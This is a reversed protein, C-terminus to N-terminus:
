PKRLLLGDIGAGGAQWRNAETFGAESGLNAFEKFSRQEFQGNWLLMSLSGSMARITGTKDDNPMHEAILFAGGASTAAFVRHMLKLIESDSHHHLVRCAVFLDASVFEGKRYDGGIFQVNAKNVVASRELSQNAFDKVSEDELMRDLVAAEIHEYAECIAIAFAGTGGGLDIVKKVGSFDFNALLEPAVLQIYRDMRVQFQIKAESSAAETPLPPCYGSIAKELHSWAQYDIENYRQFTHNLSEDSSWCLHRAAVPSNLYRDGDKKLLGLSICADLLRSLAEDGVGMKSSLEKSDQSSASLWDFIRLDVAAFITKSIRFATAAELLEGADTIKETFIKM